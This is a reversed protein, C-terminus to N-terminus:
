AIRGFRSCKALHGISVCFRSMPMASSCCNTVLAEVLDTGTMAGNPRRVLDLLPHAEIEVDSEYLRWPISAAAEAIMRVARYAVANREYSERTLTVFDRPTWRVGGLPHLALWAGRSSKQSSTPAGLLRSLLSPM